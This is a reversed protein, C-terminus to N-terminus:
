ALKECTELLRRVACAFAQPVYLDKKLLLMLYHIQACASHWNLRADDLPRDLAECYGGLYAVKAIALANETDKEPLKSFSRVDTALSALFIGMDRYASGRHCLDFDVVSWNTGTTLIQSCVFDGHCFVPETPLPVTRALIDVCSALRDASEPMLQAVWAAQEQSQSWCAAEDDQPLGDAPLCHLQAHIRGIQALLEVANAPSVIDAACVGACHTQTFMSHADSVDHLAPVVFSIGSRVTAASAIALREAADGFRDQRKIKGILPGFASDNYRFTIRRLPM